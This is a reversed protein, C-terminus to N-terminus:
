ELREIVIFLEYTGTGGVGTQTFYSVPTGAKAYFTAGCPLSEANTVCYNAFGTTGISASQVGADDTWTM